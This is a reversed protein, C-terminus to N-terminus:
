PLGQSRLWHEELVGVHWEARDLDSELSVEWIAALLAAGSLAGFRARAGRWKVSWGAVAFRGWLPPAEVNAINRLGWPPRPSRPSRRGSM